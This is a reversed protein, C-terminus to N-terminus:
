AQTILPDDKILNSSRISYQLIGICRRAHDGVRNSIEAGPDKRNLLIMLCPRFALAMTALAKANLRTTLIPNERTGVPHPKYIAGVGCYLGEVTAYVDSLAVQDDLVPTELDIYKNCFNFSRTCDIM